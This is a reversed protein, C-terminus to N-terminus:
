CGTNSSPLQSPQSPRLRLASSRIPQLVGGKLSQREWDAFCGEGGLPAVAVELWLSSSAKAEAGAGVGPLQLSVFLGGTLLALLMKVDGTCGVGILRRKWGQEEASLDAKTPVLMLSSGLSSSRQQSDVIAPVFQDLFRDVGTGLSAKLREGCDALYILTALSNFVPRLGGKM